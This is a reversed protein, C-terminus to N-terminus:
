TVTSPAHRRRHIPKIYFEVWVGSEVLQAGFRQAEAETTQDITHTPGNHGYALKGVARYVVILETM